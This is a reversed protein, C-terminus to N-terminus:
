EHKSGNVSFRESLAALVSPQGKNEKILTRMSSTVRQHLQEVSEGQKPLIPRGVHTTLGVPFGGYIGTQLTRYALRINETYIPIVPVQTLRAVKAFGTRKSWMLDCSHDFLCERAGGPSVGVLQGEELLGALSVKSYSGCRLHTAFMEMGPLYHLCRDVVSWVRRGTTLYIRSVLGLYDVPVPGHYWVIVAGGQHPINELGLITHSHWLSM